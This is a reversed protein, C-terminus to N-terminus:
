EPYLPNHDLYNLSVFCGTKWNEFWNSWEHWQDLHVFLYVRLTKAYAGRGERWWVLKSILKLSNVIKALLKVPSQIQSQCRNLCRRVTLLEKLKRYRIIWGIMSFMLYLKITTDAVNKSTQKELRFSLM